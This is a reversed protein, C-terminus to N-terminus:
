LGDDYWARRAAPRKPPAPVQAKEAAPPRVVAIKTPSPKVPAQPEPAPAAPRAVAEVVRLSESVTTKAGVVELRFNVDDSAPAYAISGTRLQGVDLGLDKSYPGDTIHLVGHEAQVVSPANRNWNVKLYSGNREVRMAPAFDMNSVAPTRRDLFRMFQYEAGTLVLLALAAIGVPRWPVSRLPAALAGALPRVHPPHPAEEKLVPEPPAPAPQPAKPVAVEDDSHESSTKLIEARSFPFELYPAQRHISGDEWFFFGGTSTKSAHPRVLLFVQGPGPFYRELLSFDDQDLYLGLRTHSRYFGVIQREPTGKRLTRELRKRDVESLVYSPGRRYECAVPEYDEIHVVTEGESSVARGFLVGGIEAGRKPVAWFGKMIDAELRDIVAFSLQISLPQGQYRWEYYGPSSPSDGGSSRASGHRMILGRLHRLKGTKSGLGARGLAPVPQSDM